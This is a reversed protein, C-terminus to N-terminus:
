KGESGRSSGHDHSEKAVVVEETTMAALDNGRVVGACRKDFNRSTPKRGEKQTEEKGKCMMRNSKEGERGRKITEKGGIEM